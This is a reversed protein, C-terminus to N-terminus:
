SSKYENVSYDSGHKRNWENLVAIIDFHPFVCGPSTTAGLETFYMGLEGIGLEIM